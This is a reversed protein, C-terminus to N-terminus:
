QSSFLALLNDNYLKSGFDMNPEFTALLPKPVLAKYPVNRCKYPIIQIGVQLCGYNPSNKILIKDFNHFGNKNLILFKNINPNQGFYHNIKSIYWTKFISKTHGRDFLNLVKSAVAISVSSKRFVVKKLEHEHYATELSFEFYNKQLIVINEKM